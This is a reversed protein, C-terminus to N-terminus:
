GEWRAWRDALENVRQSDGPLHWCAFERRGREHQEALTRGVEQIVNTATELFGEFRQDATDFRVFVYYAEPGSLCKSPRSTPWFTVKKLSTKVQLVSRRKSSPNWALVDAGATNRITPMAILGRRNLESVVFHVGAAGILDNPVKAM